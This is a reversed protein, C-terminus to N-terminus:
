GPFLSASPEADGTPPNDFLAMEEPTPVEIMKSWRSLMERDIPPDEMGRRQIRELLVDVPASLYHLEVKAGLDRARIRLADRECRGWTGWEIIVSMGRTLLGQGLKWQLREIEARKEESWLDISLAEMWEDASFRVAGLKVELTRALTTKGAGPLGCVIILRPANGPKPM